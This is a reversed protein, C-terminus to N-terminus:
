AGSVTKGVSLRQVLIRLTLAGDIARRRRRKASASYGRWGTLYASSKRAPRADVHPAAAGARAQLRWPMAVRGHDQYAVPM